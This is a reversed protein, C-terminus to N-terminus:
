HKDGECSGAGSRIVKNQFIRANLRVPSAVLRSFTCSSYTDMEFGHEINITRKLLQNRLTTSATKDDLITATIITPTLYLGKGIAVM